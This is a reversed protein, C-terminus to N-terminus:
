QAHTHRTANRDRPRIDLRRGDLLEPSLGFQDAFSQNHTDITGDSTVLVMPESFFSRPGCRIEILWIPTGDKLFPAKSVLPATIRGYLSQKLLYTSIPLASLEYCNSLPCVIVSSWRYMTGVKDSCPKRTNFSSCLANENPGWTM